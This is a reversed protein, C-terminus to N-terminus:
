YLLRNARLRALRLELDLDDISKYYDDYVADLRRARAL